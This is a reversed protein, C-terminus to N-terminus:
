TWGAMPDLNCWSALILSLTSRTSGGHIACLMPTEILMEINKAPTEYQNNENNFDPWPAM